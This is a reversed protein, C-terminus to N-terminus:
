KPGGPFYRYKLGLFRSDTPRRLRGRITPKRSKNISIKRSTWFSFYLKVTTGLLSYQKHVAIGVYIKNIGEGQLNNGDVRIKGLRAPHCGHKQQTM